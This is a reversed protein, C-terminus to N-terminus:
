EGSRKMRTHTIFLGAIAAITSVVLYLMIAADERLLESCIFVDIAITGYVWAYIVFSEDDRRVGHIACVIALVIAILCGLPRTEREITLAISGWFALNTAFHLFVPSFTTGKRLRRDIERWAFLIAACAFARVSTEVSAEILTEVRNEIGLYAALASISLSLVVRSEFYYAAIAHAVALLLFHRPWSSGLLHFQHEIYGIDASLLLAGLLLIYDDVLSPARRRKWAGYAYCTAAAIGIAAAITLPGIQEIHKSVIVGVGSAILLVGAWTLVHLEAHISVVERRESAILRSATLEDLVGDDRLNTIEPELSLM